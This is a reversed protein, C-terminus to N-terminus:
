GGAGMSLDATSPVIAPQKLRALEDNVAKLDAGLAQNLAAVQKQLQGNLLKFVEYSQATPKGDASGVTNYLSGLEDNLKIPYNLMDQGARNQVSYLEAEVANLKATLTAARQKLTADNTKAIAAAMQAKVNRSTRVGNNAASVADRIQIMLKFQEDLDAQSAKSRPDNKVTFNQSETTGAVTLKVTYTGPVAVPGQLFGTWLVMRSFWAADPYQLDWVFRNMGKKNPARQPAFPHAPAEEAEPQVHRIVNTDVSAPLVGINRLSDLKARYHISDAAAFTDAASTFSKILKGDTDYFALTVPQDASKVWYDIIAGFPPNQGGPLGQEPGSGGFNASVVPAPSFLHSAGAVVEPALLRLTAIDDMIWFSRGHTAVVIDNDKIVLDHVPVPPLNRQLRQWHGGDDFSVWVGRETGAYLMGKRMPDERVVRVFEDAAIGADIRKWTKGYDYTAFIYPRMDDLQYRNVAVYATGADHPSAEILSIRTFDGMDKPTVNTWKGGGDRTIQIFGDDSGTWITGKEKPSEAITFITGYTEVGTQDKTIPGGSPGLTAPDHRTLDPSIAKWSMGEDTSKFLVNAGVYLVNPDHPSIAIPTTWQMRFQIDQSPHGLPNVPWPSVDKEFGTRLDTRSIFGGYCGAFVINPQDPRSVVYGSECGGGNKWDGYHIGGPNASPGCLSTNDQQAGCVWYPFDTTTSVHYFQATAFSQATWSQGANISVNAGGDNANIMRQPNDAAIWLDHNDGHPDRVRSFTRGGDRSRWISTNLVYVTLSDKPDAYIRSYYWARQRLKREWNMRTWTAGADDSRYVGGSDNEIIAWVRSPMAASVTIGINGITGKPMGPNRTIEKWNDGGDTTKFIGSGAGGSSLMWPKRGAQWFAAYLVKPDAPDMALDTVGTSDNRFLIKKWNKGGDMTRYVGRDPNPAWVHGEAAVYVEDSNKPNIRVRSIQRTEALGIYTWSKGGDGSRYVGDGHSVNGRIPGEGTGVYVIDPNTESVAIGGITGGFFADSTPRWNLGGDSTKFLGGGTTGM